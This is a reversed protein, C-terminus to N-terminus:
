GLASTQGFTELHRDLHDQAYPGGLGVKTLLTQEGYHRINELRSRTKPGIFQVVSEVSLHGHSGAGTCRGGARLLCWAHRTRWTPCM